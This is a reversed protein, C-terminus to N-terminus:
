MLITELHLQLEYRAQRVHFKSIWTIKVEMRVALFVRNGGKEMREIKQAIRLIRFSFYSVSLYPLAVTINIKASFNKIIGRVNCLEDFGHLQQSHLAGTTM